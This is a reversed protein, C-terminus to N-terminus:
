LNSLWIKEIEKWITGFIRGPEDEGEIRLFRAPEEKCLELFGNRIKAFFNLGGSELRDPSHGAAIQRKRAEEPSIDIFFVRFPKLGSTAFQNLTRVVNLNLGRGYGQYATTSDYYRDAIVYNGERLLPAIKQHVLQSRAAEYLLIETKDIMESHVPSLLIDRIKESIPTGGPERVIVPKVDYEGLRDLLLKIQTTKGSFDIGEFSIFKQFTEM